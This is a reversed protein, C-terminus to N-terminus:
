VLGASFSGFLRPTRPRAVKMSVTKAEYFEMAHACTLSMLLFFSFRVIFSKKLIEKLSKKKTDAQAFPNLDTESM